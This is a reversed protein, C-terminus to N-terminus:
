RIGVIGKTSEILKPADFGLGDRFVLAVNRIEAPRAVPDGEIVALEALKGPEISGYREYEGLVKAGNATMIQIAQVPTFGAEILLEYNRLDGLGAIAGGYGTPDVGAALLGGADVFAKEYALIKEFFRPWPSDGMAQIAAYTELVEERIEPAMLDLMRQDLPPRDPVFTELVALTSTMAVGHDIMDRFTADVEPSELDLSLLSAMMTSPCEDPQKDAVYDSNTYLGHEVNDIGLEAAESFSVSCIHGTVKLGRSHAAEIVAALDARSIRTYVKFWTAGEDAWYDVVRRAEEPDDVITMDLEATPEDVLYPGTVHIRPGPLVGADIARKLNFESYPHYSGTTRITTVGSGLYLKPATETSQVVRGATMYFTHDHLGVIGPIVTHGPLDLVEAGAPVEVGTGVAEIVGDRIVITADALPPAGTGDVVQVGTLAVVPADVRVYQAVAEELDRAQGRAVGSVVPILFAALALGRPFTMRM